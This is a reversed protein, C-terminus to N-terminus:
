SDTFPERVVCIIGVYTKYAIHSILLASTLHNMFVTHFIKMIMLLQKYINISYM